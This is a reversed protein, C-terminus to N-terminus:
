GILEMLLKNARKFNDYQGQLQHQWKDGHFLNNKLFYIIVLCGILEDEISNSSGKLMKGVYEVGTADPAIKLDRYFETFEGDAVYRSRLYRIYSAINFQYLSGNYKLSEVYKIIKDIHVENNLKTGEFFSWLISFDQIAEKDCDPLAGFEPVKESLWAIVRLRSREETRKRETIDTYLGILGIIKGSDDKIADARLLAFSIAGSKSTLEIEGTWSGGGRIAEFVAQATDKNAYIGLGGGLAQLDETTYGVLQTFAKNHYFHKGEPDTLVIADPSSEAAKKVIFLTEEAKKLKETTALLKSKDTEGNERTKYFYKM